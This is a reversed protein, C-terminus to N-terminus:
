SKPKLDFQLFRSDNFLDVLDCDQICQTARERAEKLEQSEVEESPESALLLASFASFLSNDKKFTKKSPAILLSVKGAIFDEGELMVKPLLNEQFLTKICELLNKWSERM